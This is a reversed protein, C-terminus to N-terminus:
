LAPWLTALQFRSDGRPNTRRDESGSRTPHLLYQSAPLAGRGSFLNVKLRPLLFCSSTRTMFRGPSTLSALPGILLRRETRPRLVVCQVQGCLPVQTFSLSLSVSLPLPLFSPCFALTLPLPPFSLPLNHIDECFVSTSNSSLARQTEYLIFQTDM